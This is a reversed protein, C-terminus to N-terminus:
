DHLMELGFTALLRPTEMREGATVAYSLHGVFAEREGLHIAEPHRPDLLQSVLRWRHPIVVQLAGERLTRCLGPCVRPAAELCAECRAPNTVLIARGLEEVDRCVPDVAVFSRRGRHPRRCVQRRDQGICDRQRAERLKGRVPRGCGQRNARGGGSFLARAGGCVRDPCVVATAWAEASWMAIYPM